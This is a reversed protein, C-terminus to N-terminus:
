SITETEDEPLWAFFGLEAYMDLDGDDFLLEMDTVQDALAPIADIDPGPTRGQWLAVTVVALALAVGVPLWPSRRNTGTAPHDIADLAAQRARNLRSLTAADLEDVSDRLQRGTRAAFREDAQQQKKTDTKM